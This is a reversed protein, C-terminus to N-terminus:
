PPEAQQCHSIDRWESAMPVLMVPVVAGRVTVRVTRARGPDLQQSWGLAIMDAREAEAVDLVHEGTVGSRLELRAGPQACYRALFEEEWARRAHAAQDWFRPVTEADFVHLVVLDVGAHAFQEVTEAVAAASEATGDLPVLVRRIEPRRGRAAPPVLIVPRASRQVVRWWIPRSLEDGALVVLLTGPSHLARLVQGAAREASLDRAPSVRRVQARTVEAVAAATGIVPAETKGPGLVALVQTM